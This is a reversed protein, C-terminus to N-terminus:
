RLVVVRQRDLQRGDARLQSFYVGSSLPRGADDRGGWTVTHVGPAAFENVLQRVARGSADYIVVQAHAAETLAYRIRMGMGTREIPFLGADLQISAGHAQIIGDGAAARGDGDDGDGVPWAGILDCEENPPSFPACPSRDKLIFQGKMPNVFHPDLCINGNVGLQDAIVGTWDGGVNGYIDTCSFTFVDSGSCAAGDGGFAIISNTISYSSEDHAMLGSGEPAHNDYLTCNNVEAHGGTVLYFELAIAGGAVSASNNWFTCENIVASAGDYSCLGGGYPEGVNGVFMSREVYLTTSARNTLAGGSASSYNESFYCDTVTTVSPDGDFFGCGLGGGAGSSNRVFTCNSVLVNSYGGAGIAGAGSGLAENGEFYCDEITSNSFFFDIGGMAFPSLNDIFRCNRITASTWFMEPAYNGSVLIAGGAPVALALPAYGGTITLGEIVTDPGEGSDIRFGRHPDEPTGECDIICNKPNESEGRV